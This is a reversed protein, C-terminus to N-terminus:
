MHSRKIGIRGSADIRSLFLPIQKSYEDVATKSGKWYGYDDIILVGGEVLRPYLHTLEHKTSSYWDTDLRLLALANPATHPLTEEVPGKVFVIKEKPYGTAYLTAQVDTIQVYCWENHDDKQRDKWKTMATVEPRTVRVDHEDPETMGSFTDYLYLTRSTDDFQMLTKAALKMSGGKWVGCEVIDGQINNQVLYEVSKYLAYLREPSTMTENKCSEYLTRFEPDTGEIDVPFPRGKHIQYGGKPLIRNLIHLLEM